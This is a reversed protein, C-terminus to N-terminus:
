ERFITRCPVPAIDLEPEVPPYVAYPRKKSRRGVACGKSGCPCRRSEADDMPRVHIAIVNVDSSSQTDRVGRYMTVSTAVMNLADLIRQTHQGNGRSKLFREKIVENREVPDTPDEAHISAATLADGNVVHWRLILKPLVGYFSGPELKSVQRYQELAVTSAYTNTEPARFNEKFTWVAPEYVNM